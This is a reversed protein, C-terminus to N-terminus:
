WNPYSWRRHAGIGGKRNQGMGNRRARSKITNLAEAPQCRSATGHRSEAAAIIETAAAATRAQGPIAKLPDLRPALPFRAYELAKRLLAILAEKEETTLDLQETM